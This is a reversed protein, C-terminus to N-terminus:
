RRFFRLALWALAGLVALVAVDRVRGLQAIAIIVLALVAAGISGSRRRRWFLGRWGMGVSGWEHGLRAETEHKVRRAMAEYHAREARKLEAEDAIRRAQSEAIRAQEEAAQAARERALRENLERQESTDFRAGCHGCAEVHANSDVGCRVCKLFPVGGREALELPQEVTREIRAANAPSSPAVEKADVQLAQFRASPSSTQEDADLQRQKELKDFRAFRSM